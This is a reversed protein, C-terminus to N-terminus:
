DEKQTDTEPLLTDREEVLGQVAAELLAIKVSAEALNRQLSEIVKDDSITIGPLM